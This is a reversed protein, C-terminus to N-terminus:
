NYKKNSNMYTTGRRIISEKKSRTQKLKGGKGLKRFLGTEIFTKMEKTKQFSAGFFASFTVFSFSNFSISCFDKDDSINSNKTNKIHGQFLFLM